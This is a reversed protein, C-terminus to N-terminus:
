SAAARSCCTRTSPSQGLRWWNESGMRGRLAERPSLVVGKLSGSQLLTPWESGLASELASEEALLLGDLDATIQRTDLPTLRAGLRVMTAQLAADSGLWWWESGALAPPEWQCNVLPVSFRFCAGEGLQSRVTLTGGMKQVLQDCIALGLGTGGFRRNIDSELQEFPTFLRAQKEEAIGIGTDTVAIVLLQDDYSARISITGQETFKVANNLLNSVVQGVRVPDIDAQDPLQDEWQLTVKLGKSYALTAHGRIVDCVVSQLRCSQYNLHLQGAEIKSFDLIDNVLYLLNNASSEVNRLLYRQDDNLESM